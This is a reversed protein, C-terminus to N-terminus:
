GTKTGLYKTVEANDTMGPVQSWATVMKRSKADIAGGAVVANAWDANRIAKHTYGGDLSVVWVGQNPYKGVMPLMDHIGEPLPPPPPPAAAWTTFWQALDAAAGRYANFDIQKNGWTAQCTYQWLVPELGGLGAWGAGKDGGRATYIDAPNGTPWPQPGYHANVLDFGKGAMSPSGQESWYWRATYVLACRHGLERIEGAVDLVDAWTPHQEGGGAHCNDDTDSEWDIMCPIDSSGVSAHFTAAQKVAPHTDCPYVFHYAVFPVGRTRCWEIVRQASPDAKEGISARCIGFAIGHPDPPVIGEQWSSVDPGLLATSAAPPPSSGGPLKWVTPQPQGAAKWQTVSNPIETCQFHWPESGVNRFDKLGYDKEVSHAWALDGVVDCAQAYGHFTSEHFSKGPPAAHAMGKRLMYRRGEFSCCGGSSVVYHRELFVNRQVDSSRWATGVGIKGAGAEIMAKLRRQFEPHCGTWTKKAELQAMTVQTGSYGYPYTQETM